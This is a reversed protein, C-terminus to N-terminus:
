KSETSKFRNYYRLFYTLKPNEGDHKRDFDWKAKEIREYCKDRSTYKEFLKKDYFCLLKTDNQIGYRKIPNDIECGKNGDNEKVVPLKGSKSCTNLVELLCVSPGTIYTSNEDKLSRILIGGFIGNDFSSDFCIDFGSYHFFLDGAEKNTRPYTVWNWEDNFRDKDYYYFEIEAFYYKKDGCQLCFNKLLTEAINKFSEQINDENMGNCAKRIEDKINMPKLKSNAAFTPLQIPLM